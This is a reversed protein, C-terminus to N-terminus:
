CLLTAPLGCDFREVIGVACEQFWVIFLPARIRPLTNHVLICPYPYPCLYLFPYSYSVAVRAIKFFNYSTVVPYALTNYTRAKSNRNELNYTPNDLSGTLGVWRGGGVSSSRGRVSGVERATLSLNIGGFGLNPPDPTPKWKELIQNVRDLWGVFNGAINPLDLSIQVM